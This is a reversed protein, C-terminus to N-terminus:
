NGEQNQNAYFVGLPCTEQHECLSGCYEQRWNDSCRDFHESFQFRQEAEATGIDRKARESEYYKHEEIAKAMQRSQWACLKAFGLCREIKKPLTSM